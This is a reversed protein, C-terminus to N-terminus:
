LRLKAEMADHVPVPMNERLEPVDLVDEFGFEEDMNHLTTLGVFNSKLGPLRQHRSLIASEMQMRMAMHGGFLAESEELKGHMKNALAGKQLAQVPHVVSTDLACAHIGDRMSNAPGMVPISSEMTQKQPPRVSFVLRTQKRKSAIGM